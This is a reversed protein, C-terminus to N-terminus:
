QFRQAERDLEIMAGNAFIRKWAMGGHGDDVGVTDM